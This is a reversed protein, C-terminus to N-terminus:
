RIELQEGPGVVFFKAANGNKLSIELTKSSGKTLFYEEKEAKEYNARFRMKGKFDHLIVTYEKKGTHTLNTIINGFTDVRVVEGTRGKLHFKLKKLKAASTKAGLSSFKEGRELKAAALAFVDRGHFTKSAGKVSLQRVSKIGDKKAASYLLGNDPGIFYYNKTKIALAKRKSGVGPDVVGLFITGKPFFNYNQLLVWAGEKVAQPKINHTLDIVEPNICNAAIVGKMVGAYESGNFDTLITIM